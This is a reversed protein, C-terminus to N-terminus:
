AMAHNHTMCSNVKFLANSVGDANKTPLAVAEVFKFFYDSITLIYRNGRSSAPSIPGIFDIGIHYWPAKVPVPLLDSKSTIMKKATSENACM